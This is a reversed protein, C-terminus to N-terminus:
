EALLSTRTRASPSHQAMKRWRPVFPPLPKGLYPLIGRAAVAIEHLDEQRLRWGSVLHLPLDDHKELWDLLCGGVPEDLSSPDDPKKWQCFRIRIGMKKDRIIDVRLTTLGRIGSPTTLCELIGHRIAYASAYAQVEELDLWEAKSHGLYLNELLESGDHSHVSLVHRRSNFVFYYGFPVIFFSHEDPANEEGRNHVKLGGILQQETSPQARVSLGKGRKGRGM